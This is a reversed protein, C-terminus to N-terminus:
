PHTEEHDTAAVKSISEVRFRGPEYEVFSFKVRDGPQLGDRILGESLAFSMTMAQWHLDPVAEHALTIQQDDISKVVGITTHSTGAVANPARAESPMSLRNVASRLSAESDILFQGSLVIRDGESLGSHIETYGDAETGANVDVVDFRNDDLARVVVSREGTVIIAESPVVLQPETRPQTFQLSVFMGPVLQRNPNSIQVRVTETRSERGVEPLLAIVSGTFVQGAYATARAQVQVVKLVQSVQAEPIEANV